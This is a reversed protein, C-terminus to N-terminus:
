QRSSHFPFCVEDLQGFITWFHGTHMKGHGSRGAKIPTEDMAKVRSSRIAALQAEYIPTLLSIVAQAVQTLWPRSVRIGAAELRQHQRYLPIHWAFKDMLLGAAFSVDARRGELVGAPAPLCLIQASAESMSPTETLTQSGTTAASQMNNMTGRHACQLAQKITSQHGIDTSFIAESGAAILYLCKLQSGRRNVFIYLAGDLPDRGMSVFPGSIVSRSNMELREGASDKLVSRWQRFLSANIRERRCFEPVSMGSSSQRCFLQKWVAAGRRIRKSQAM